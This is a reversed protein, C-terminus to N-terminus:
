LLNTTSLENLPVIASQDYVAKKLIDIIGENRIIVMGHRDDTIGKELRYTYTPYPGNMSTPMYYFVMNSVAQLSEAAEVIHSSVIFLSSRKKAFGKMVAITAEEADKVNTGRFLEDFLVFYSKGSAVAFAMKKVRMVEAYFHSAGMGLNDPLNITTYLGDLVSFEMATAAVPFGLHATYLAASIARLITSKGAMNAGTLFLVNSGSDLDVDNGTANKVTPYYVGKLSLRNESRDTAIPFVLRKDLATQAVSLYVDLRYIYGLLTKLRDHLSSRFLTDFATSASFALKEKPVNRLAPALDPENLVSLMGRYDQVFHENHILAEHELLDRTLALLEIVAVVANQLEREGLLATAAKATGDARGTALYKEVLDLLSGSYPFTVSELCFFDIIRSRRNIEEKDSLPTRFIEGLMVEGGRTHTRNYLDFLGPEGNGSFIRLDAMTQEDTQLFM